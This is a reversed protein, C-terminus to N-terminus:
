LGERTRSYPPAMVGANNVLLSLPGLDVARGAASRVSDLLSLDVVLRDVAADPLGRLIADSAAALREPVRGALVVPRGGRALELAVYYGISGVTPGTVIATGTM